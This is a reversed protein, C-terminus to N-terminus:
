FTSYYAGFGKALHPPTRQTLSPPHPMQRFNFVDGGSSWQGRM